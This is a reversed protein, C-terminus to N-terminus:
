EQKARQGRRRWFGVMEEPGKAGEGEGYAGHKTESMSELDSERLHPLSLSLM